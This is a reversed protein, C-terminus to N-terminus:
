QYQHRLKGTFRGRHDHVALPHAFTLALADALISLSPKPRMYRLDETRNCPM